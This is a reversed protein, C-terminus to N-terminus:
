PAGLDGVWPLLSVEGVLYAPYAADWLANSIPGVVRVRRARERHRGCCLANRVANCLGSCLTVWQMSNIDM